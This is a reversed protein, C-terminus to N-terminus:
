RRIIQHPASTIISPIFHVLFSTCKFWGSVMGGGEMQSFNDEMFSIRSALLTSSLQKLPDVLSESTFFRGTICSVHIRDRPQSSGRSFSLAVWELIRAQSIGHCILGHPRLLRVHSLSYVVVVSSIIDFNYGSCWGQKETQKWCTQRNVQLARAGQEVWLGWGGWLRFLALVQGDPPQSTSPVPGRSTESLVCDDTFM